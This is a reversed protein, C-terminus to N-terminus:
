FHHVMSLSVIQKEYDSPLYNSSNAVYQYSLEASYGKLVERSLSLYISHYDDERTRLQKPGIGDTFDFNRYIYQASLLSKEIEKTLGAKLSHVKKDIYLEQSADRRKDEDLYSYGISMHAFDFSNTVNFGGEIMDSDRDAHVFQDYNKRRLKAWVNLRSSKSLKYVFSPAIAFSHLLPDSGYMFKDVELPLSWEYRDMRHSLASSAKMYLIDYASYHNHHQNYILASSNIYYRGRMGIDYIHSAHLTEHAFSDKLIDDARVNEGTIDFQDSLYNLLESQGPNANVNTDYGAGVKVMASLSHKTRAKEIQDLLMAINKKVSKPADSALVDYFEIKAADLDGLKLYVRGLELRTRHHKENVILVRDYASLADEYRGLEYASRGLFFNVEANDSQKTYLTYFKDFAGKYNGAEYEALASKFDVAFLSHAFFTTVFLVFIFRM